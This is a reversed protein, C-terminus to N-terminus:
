EGHRKASDGALMEPMFIGESVVRKAKNTFHPM